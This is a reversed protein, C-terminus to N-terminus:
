RFGIFHGENSVSRPCRVDAKGISLATPLTCNWSFESSPIRSVGSLPSQDGRVWVKIVSQDGSRPDTHPAV